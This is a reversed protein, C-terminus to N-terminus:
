YIELRGNPHGVGRSPVTECTHCYPVVERKTQGSGSLAFHGDRVTVYVEQGIIEAGCKHTFGVGEEGTSETLVLWKNGTTVQGSRRKSKEKDSM